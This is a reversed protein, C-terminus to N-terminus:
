HRLQPSGEPSLSQHHFHCDPFLFLFTNKKDTIKTVQGVNQLLLLNTKNAKRHMNKEFM